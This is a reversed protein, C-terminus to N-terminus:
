NHAGREAAQEVLGVSQDYPPLDFIAGRAAQGPADRFRGVVRAIEFEGILIGIEADGAEAELAAQAFGADDRRIRGAQGGHDVRGGGGGVIGAHSLHACSAAVTEVLRQIERGGAHLFAVRKREHAGEHRMMLAHGDDGDGVGQQVAHHAIPKVGFGDNLGGLKQQLFTNRAFDGRQAGPLRLDFRRRARRIDIGRAAALDDRRM